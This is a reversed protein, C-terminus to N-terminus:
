TLREKVLVQGTVILNSTPGPRMTKKGLINYMM